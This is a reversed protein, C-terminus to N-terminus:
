YDEALYATWQGPSPRQLWICRGDLAVLPPTIYIWDHPEGDDTATDAADTILVQLLEGLTAWPPVLGTRGDLDNIGPATQGGAARETLTERWDQETMNLGASAALGYADKLAAFLADSVTRVPEGRFTAIGWGDMLRVTGEDVAEKETYIVDPEHDYISSTM